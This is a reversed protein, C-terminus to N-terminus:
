VRRRQRFNAYAEFVARELQDPKAVLAAAGLARLAQVKRELSTCYEQAAVARYPDLWERAPAHALAEAATSSLGAIFPLHKPLLLRVAGLLQSASTADDLDTLLIVLTRQRVLSRVRLMAQLPNSERNIVQTGALANRIRVVATSGRAPALALLPQDAFVVLGVLDDQTVAFQALRAAVNVYHGFRDLEGARLGSARGADVVVVIELHQDEAFDRSILRQARASAKWDVIRPPDGAQYQRLQLLEAGAGLKASHRHGMQGLGQAQPASRLLDTLVRVEGDGSVQKSWSALGLPGTIRVRMAPWIFQGLRRPTAQLEATATANSPILLSRIAFDMSFSVPAAPAFEIRVPRQLEHTFQMQVHSARGLFWNDAATIRLSVRAANAVISEYALGLLLLGAPLRWASALLSQGSWDGLVAILATLLALLLANRRLNL